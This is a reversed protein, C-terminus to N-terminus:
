LVGCGVSPVPVLVASCWVSPVACAVASGLVRFQLVGPVRFLVVGLVWVLVVAVSCWGFVLVQGCQSAGPVAGPVRCLVAGLRSGLVLLVVGPVQFVVGNM